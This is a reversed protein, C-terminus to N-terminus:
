EEGIEKGIQLKVIKKLPEVATKAFKRAQRENRDILTLLMQSRAWAVYAAGLCGIIATILGPKQKVLEEISGLRTVYLRLLYHGFAAAAVLGIVPPALLSLAGDLTPLRGKECLDILHGLEHALKQYFTESFKEQRSKLKAIEPVDIFIFPPDTKRYHMGVLKGPALWSRTRIRTLRELEDARLQAVWEPKGLECNYAYTVGAVREALPWAGFAIVLNNLRSDPKQQEARAEPSLNAEIFERLDAPDVVVKVPGQKTEMETDIIYPGLSAPRVEELPFNGEAELTKM